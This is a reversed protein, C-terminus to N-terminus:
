QDDRKAKVNVRKPQQKAKAGLKTFAPNHSINSYINDYKM